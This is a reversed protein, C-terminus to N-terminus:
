WAAGRGSAIAPKRFRAEPNLFDWKLSFGSDPTGFGEGIAKWGNRSSRLHRKGRHSIRNKSKPPLEAATLGQGPDLFLPDYGFGLTGRPEFLIEGRWSGEFSESRGDPRFLVLVCPFCGGTAKAAGRRTKQAAEPQQDRRYGNSGFVKGLPNRARGRTRRFRLGSDDALVVESTHRSVERAKKLANEHSPSATKRWKPSVPFPNCPFFMSISTASCTGFNGVKGENRTALVIRRILDNGRASRNAKAHADRDRKRCSRHARQSSGALVPLRPRGRSKSSFAGRPDDRCEHGSGCHFGRRVASRSADPRGCDRRQRRVCFDKVPMQAVLGEGRLRRFADVLAVFAGTISATRTGGDAQIVECDIHITRAGFATLDTVARLSRGILRQIEHTRGGVKGRSSERASREHTAAPIM